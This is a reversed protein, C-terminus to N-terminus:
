VAPATALRAKPASTGATSVLAARTRARTNATRPRRFLAGRSRRPHASAAASTGRPRAASQFWASISRPAAYQVARLGRAPPPAPARRAPVPRPPVQPHRLPPRASRPAPPTSPPPRPRAPPAHPPSARPPPPPARPAGILRRTRRDISAGSEDAGF